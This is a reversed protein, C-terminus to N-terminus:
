ESRIFCQKKVNGAGMTGFLKPGCVTSPISNPDYDGCSRIRFFGGWNIVTNCYLADGEGEGEELAKAMVSILDLTTDTNNSRHALGVNFVTLGAFVCLVIPFLLKRKMIKIKIIKMTRIKQKTEKSFLM